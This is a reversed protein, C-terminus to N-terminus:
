KLKLHSLTIVEQLSVTVYIHLQTLAYMRFILTELTSVRGIKKVKRWIKPQSPLVYYTQVTNLSLM